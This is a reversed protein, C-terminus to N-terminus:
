IVAWENSVYVRERERKEDKRMEIERRLERARKEKM